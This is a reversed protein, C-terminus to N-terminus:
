DLRARVRRCCKRPGGASDTRAWSGCAISCSAGHALVRRAAPVCRPGRRSHLRVETARRSALADDYIGLRRYSTLSALSHTPPPSPPLDLLPHRLYAQVRDTDSAELYFGGPRAAAECAGGGRRSLSRSRVRGSGAGRGCPLASAPARPRSAGPRASEREREGAGQAGRGAGDGSGSGLGRFTFIDHSPPPRAAAAAAAAAGDYHSAGLGQAPEQLRPSACAPARGPEGRAGAEVGGGGDDGPARRETSVVRSASIPAPVHPACHQSTQSQPELLCAAPQARPAGAVAAGAAAEGAHGGAEASLPASTAKSRLSPAVAGQEGGGPPAEHDGVAAAATQATRTPACHTGRAATREDRVDLERGDGWGAHGSGGGVALPPQLALAPPGASAQAARPSASAARRGEWAVSTGSPTGDHRGHTRVQEEEVEQQQQQQQQQVAAAAHVAEEGQSSPRRTPYARADAGPEDDATSADAEPVDLAECGEPVSAQQQQQLSRLAMPAARSLGGLRCGGDLSALGGRAHQHQQHQQRHHLPAGAALARTYGGGGQRAAAAGGAGERVAEEFGGHLGRRRKRRRSVADQALTHDAESDSVAVTAADLGEEDISFVGEGGAAGAGSWWDGPESRTEDDGDRDRWAQRADM